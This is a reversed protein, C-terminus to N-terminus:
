CEVESEPVCDSLPTKLGEQINERMGPISTLYLTEMLSNYDNESLIVANGDKTTVNVPENYRITRELMKFLQGRLNTANITFM